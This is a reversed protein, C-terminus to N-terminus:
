SHKVPKDQNIKIQFITLKLERSIDAFLDEEEEKRKRVKNKRKNTSRQPAEM